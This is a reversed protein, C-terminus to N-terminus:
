DHRHASLSVSVSDAFRLANPKVVEVSADEVPSYTMIINLIQHALSEILNFRSEEVLAIINKNIAKYDLSLAPDDTLQAQTSDYDIRYSIIVDQLKNVEHDNYGIHTRLRLNKIQLLAM